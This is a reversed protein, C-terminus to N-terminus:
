RHEKRQQKIARCEPSLVDDVTRLAAKAVGCDDVFVSHEGHGYSRPSAYYEVAERLVKVADLMRAAELMRLSETTTPGIM